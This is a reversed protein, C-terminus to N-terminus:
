QKTYLTVNAWRSEMCSSQDQHQMYVGFKFYYSEGPIVSAGFRRRLATGAFVSAKFLKMRKTNRSIFEEIIDEYEIKDLLGSELAIIALDTLRQQTMTSCLSNLFAGSAKHVARSRRGDVYVAVTSAAVDHVINLQFWRDYISRQVAAGNYFRLVGDYVHLMLVTEHAASGEGATHIQMVSAGSTGAPVYGDGEFQWVGSSYEHGRIMAESRPNTHIATNFPMDTKYVWFTRVGDRYRFRQSEPVNYPSQVMFDGDALEVKEFGDTPNDGSGRGAAVAVLAAHLFLM